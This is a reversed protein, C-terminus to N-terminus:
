WAYYAFSRHTSRKVVLLNHITISLIVNCYVVNERKIEVRMSVETAIAVCANM